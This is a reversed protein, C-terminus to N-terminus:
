DHDLNLGNLFMVIDGIIGILVVYCKTDYNHTNDSHGSLFWAGIMWAPRM